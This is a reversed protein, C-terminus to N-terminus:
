FVDFRTFVTFDTLVPLVLLAGHGVMLVLLVDVMAADVHRLLVALRGDQLEAGADLGVAGAGARQVSAVPRCACCRLACSLSADWLVARM